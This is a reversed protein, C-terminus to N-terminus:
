IAKATYNYPNREVVSGGKKYGLTSTKKEDFLPVFQKEPEFLMVNKGGKESTTFSDYGEQKLVKLFDKDEIASYRGEKINSAFGKNSYKIKEELDEKNQKLFQSIAKPMPVNDFKHLFMVMEKQNESLLNPDIYDSIKLSVKKGFKGEQVAQKLKVEALLKDLPELESKLKVEALLKDLPELESKLKVLADDLEKIDKKTKKSFKNLIDETDKVNEFDFTKKAKVMGPILRAGDFTELNALGFKAAVDPQTATSLFDYSGKKLDFKSFPKRSMTSHYVVVPNDDEDLLLGEKNKKQSAIKIPGSPVKPDSSDISKKFDKLIAASEKSLSTDDSLSLFDTLAESRKGRIIRNVARSPINGGPVNEAGVLATGLVGALMAKPDGESVGTELNKGASSMAAPVNRLDFLSLLGEVPRAAPGLAARAAKDGKSFVSSLLDKLGELGEKPAQIKVSPVDSGGIPLNKPIQNQEAM